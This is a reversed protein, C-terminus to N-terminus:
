FRIAYQVLGEGYQDRNRDTLRTNALELKLASKLDVDFRAGLAVRYYSGGGELAAFYPDAQDLVTREYRAYSVGWRSRYGFQAFGATSHHRGSGQNLDNNDFLYIEAIHEWRDTDYAAYGGYAHIRTANAANDEIRASFAHLGLVLGDAAGSNFEFGIRGGGMLTGHPGGANRMDLAGDVIQQSNGLYLDYRLKGTGAQRAGTLWLGVTHAPLIGGNDEFQLFKPRRVSNNIWAGHHLATNLYGYPTHFRGLWVTSQDNFQYGIQARELDVGVSGDSGVETNLEFLARTRDGLRPALYFDLNGVNFGKLAANIANHTGAGVDAFGHLPLGVDNANQRADSKELEEVRKETSELRAAVPEAPGTAEGAPAPATAATASQKAELERVRETLAKIALLSEDLKRQMEALKAATPETNAAAQAPASSMAALLLALACHRWPKLAVTANRMFEDGTM